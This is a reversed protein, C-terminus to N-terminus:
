VILDELFQSFAAEDNQRERKNENQMKIFTNSCMGILDDVSFDEEAVANDEPEDEDPLELIDDDDSYEEDTDEEDWVGREDGWLLVDDKYDEFCDDVGEWENDYSLRYYYDDSPIDKLMDLLERWSGDWHAIREDITSDLEEEGYIEDCIYCSNESCFNLLDSWSVINEAFEGRTM